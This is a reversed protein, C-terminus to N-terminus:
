CFGFSLFSSIFSSHPWVLCNSFDSSLANWENNVVALLLVTFMGAWKDRFVGRAEPAFYLARFMDMEKTVLSLVYGISWGFSRKDFSGFPRRSTDFVKKQPMALVVVSGKWWGPTSYWFIQLGRVVKKILNLTLPAWLSPYKLIRRCFSLISSAWGRFVNRWQYIVFPTMFGWLIIFHYSTCIQWTGDLYFCV